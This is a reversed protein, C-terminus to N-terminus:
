DKVKDDTKKQRLNHSIPNLISVKQTESLFCQPLFDKVKPETPVKEPIQLIHSAMWMKPVTRWPASKGLM